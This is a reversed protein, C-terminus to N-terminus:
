QKIIRFTETKNQTKVYVLYFGAKLRQVSTSFINSTIHQDNFIMTGDISYISVANIRENNKSRVTLQNSVPNPFVETHLVSAGDMEVAVIKSYAFHEDYDIQKLRYYNMGSGPNEDVFSYNEVVSSNGHGAIQGITVFGETDTSREINFMRNNEEQETTWELRVSNASEKSGQFRSLTVPLIASGQIQMEYLSYGYGTNRATGNMRVYRGSGTVSISNTLTAAPNNTITALTTWSSLDNSVDITFNKGNATEWTLNVACINTIAGLDIYINQPDSFASSWRTGANGDNTNSALYAINELSSAVVPKGLGINIAPCAPAASTSYVQFEYLSYGYGTGRATGNMRVYRATGSISITNVFSGNGTITQATTWTVADNSIDITFNKGLATEWYLVVQCLPYPSGLDVYIYQPDSFASSWRTTTTNGDFASSAPYGANELSSAYATKGLAINYTTNCQSYGSYVLFLVGLLSFLLRNRM